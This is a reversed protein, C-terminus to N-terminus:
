VPARWNQLSCSLAHASWTDVVHLYACTQFAQSKSSNLHVNVIACCGMIPSMTWLSKKMVLGRLASWTCWQGARFRRTHGPLNNSSSGCIGAVSPGSFWSLVPLFLLLSSTPFSIAPLMQLYKSIAQTLALVYNLVNYMINLVNHTM